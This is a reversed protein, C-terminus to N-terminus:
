RSAAETGEFIPTMSASTREAMAPDAGRERLSAETKVAGRAGGYSRLLQARHKWCATATGQFVVSRESPDTPRYTLKLQWAPREGCGAQYCGMSVESPWTALPLLAGPRAALNFTVSM